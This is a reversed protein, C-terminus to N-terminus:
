GIITTQRAILVPHEEQTHLDRQIKVTALIEVSSGPQLQEEGIVSHSESDRILLNGDELTTLRGSGTEFSGLRVDPYMELRHTGYVKVEAGDTLNVLQKKTRIAVMHSM